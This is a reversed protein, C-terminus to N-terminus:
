KWILSDQRIHWREPSQGPRILDVTAEFLTGAASLTPRTLTANDPVAIGLESVSTAWRGNARRFERQAYYVQHLWQRAAHSPDPM